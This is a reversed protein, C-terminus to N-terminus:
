VNENKCIERYSGPTIGELKKFTKGFVNSSLFGNDEAIEAINKETNRLQQKAGNIRNRTIAEPISMQYKEKFLKSLYSSSIGFHEGLFELSLQQKYNNEIYEFVKVCIDRAEQEQQKRYVKTLIEIFCQTFEYLTECDLLAQNMLRWQTAGFGGRLVVRNLASITEFKFSDVTEMSAQSNIRYRRMIEKVIQEASRETPGELLYDSIMHLVKSESASTDDFNRDSIQGYHIISGKGFLYKYKLALSSEEYATHIDAIGEKISSIGITMIMEFYQELFDKGEKLLANLRENTMGKKMNVFIAYRGIPLPVVYGMNDENILEGFVNSLMFHEPFVGVKGPHEINLIVVVFYNSCLEIGNASFINDTDEVVIKKSGNLLSYIFKERKAELGKRLDNNMSNIEDANKQFMSGIFEFETKERDDYDYKGMKKITEVLVELPKYVRKAEKRAALIGIALSVILGMGCVIYLHFLKNWYYESSVAYTYYTEVIESERIQLVYSESEIMQEFANKTGQYGELGYSLLESDTSFISEKAANHILFGGNLKSEDVSKIIKNIYDQDFILVTTFNNNENKSNVQKMAMCLYSDIGRGGMSYLTPKGSANEVVSRFDEKLSNANEGFTNSFFTDCYTDLKSSAQKGSVVRDDIPYYVLIDFYREEAYTQLFNSIEWVEYTTKDPNQKAYRPYNNCKENNAISVSIDFSNKAIDDIREFFQKLTNYSAIQIQEKVLKQAQGFLLVVTIMPVALIISYSRFYEYFFSKSKVRRLKQNIYKM